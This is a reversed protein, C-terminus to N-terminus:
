GAISFAGVVDSSRRQRSNRKYQREIEQCTDCLRRESPKGCWICQGHKRKLAYRYVRGDRNQDYCEQCKAKGGLTRDTQRGCQVCERNLRRREYTTM